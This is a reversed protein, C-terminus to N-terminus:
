KKGGYMIDFPSRIRRLSTDTVHTYIETTQSSKHGLLSQIYRLDTGSELLHTAYSHRLWHLTVPKKIGADEIAKKLVKELSSATYQGGRISGEFLWVEPRYLKYYERLMEVIEESIPIMRDKNGKSQKIILFGRKSDVDKIQLNILESRRLGCGYILSLMTRHKINKIVDLIKRVEEMSLVNPLKHERRPREFKDVDFDCFMVERFFIKSANVVLNQFSYSLGNKIVYENVFRSMDSAVVQEATKPYIWALFTKVSDCYTSISSESYRRYQMWQRMKEILPIVYPPAEPPSVRVIKKSTRAVPSDVVFERIEQLREGYYDQIRKENNGYSPIQWCNKLKNWRSFKFTNIFKFDEETTYGFLFLTKEIKDIRVKGM